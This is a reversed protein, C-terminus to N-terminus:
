CFRHSSPPQNNNVRPKGRERDWRDCLSQERRRVLVRDTVVRLPLEGPCHVHHMCLTGFDVVQPAAEAGGALPLHEDSQFDQLM